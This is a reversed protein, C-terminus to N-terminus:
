KEEKIADNPCWYICELCEICEAYDIESVGWLVSVAEPPCSFVCNGCGVCIKKDVTVM